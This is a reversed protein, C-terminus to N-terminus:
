EQNEFAGVLALSFFLTNVALGVMVSITMITDTFCYWYALLRIGMMTVCLIYIWIIINKKLGKPNDNYLEDRQKSPLITNFIFMLPTIFALTFIFDEVKGTFLDFVINAVEVYFIALMGYVWWYMDRKLYKM